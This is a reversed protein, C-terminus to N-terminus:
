ALSRERTLVMSSWYSRDLGEWDKDISYADKM